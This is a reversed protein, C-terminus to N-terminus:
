DGVYWWLDGFYESLNDWDAMTIIGANVASRCYSARSNYNYITPVNVKAWESATNFLERMKATDM